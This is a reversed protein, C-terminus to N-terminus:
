VLAHKAVLFICIHICLPAHMSKNHLQMCVFILSAGGCLQVYAAMPSRCAADKDQLCRKYFRLAVVCHLVHRQAEIRPLSASGHRDSALSGELQGRQCSCNTAAWSSLCMATKRQAAPGPLHLLLPQLCHRHLSVPEPLGSRHCPRRLLAVRAGHSVASSGHCAAQGGAHWELFSSM